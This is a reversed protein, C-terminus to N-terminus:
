QSNPFMVFLRSEHRHRECPPARLTLDRLTVDWLPQRSPLWTKHRCLRPREVRRLPWYVSSVSWEISKFLRISVGYVWFLGISVGQDVRSTVGLSVMSSDLWSVRYVQLPWYVSRLISVRTDMCESSGWCFLRIYRWCQGAYEWFVGRHLLARNVGLLAGYVGLLAGCVSLLAGCVSSLARFVSQAGFVSLLAWRVCLLAGHVNLLARYLLAEFVKSRLLSVPSISLFSNCPPSFEYSGKDKCTMKLLLARYKTARNHFIIQLKPSGILRPWGTDLSLSYCIDFSPCRGFIALCSPCTGCIPCPASSYSVYFSQLYRPSM